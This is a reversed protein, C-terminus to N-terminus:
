ANKVRYLKVIGFIMIPLCLWKISAVFSHVWFLTASFAHMDYLFWLELSNEVWDLLGALMAIYMFFHYRNTKSIGKVKILWSLLSVFFVTYSLAYLYDTIIWKNFVAVDWHSVLEIAKHKDFILQLLIVDIGNKTDIIPNAIFMVLIFMCVTTIMSILVIKKSALIQM